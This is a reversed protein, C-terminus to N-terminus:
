PACRPRGGRRRGSTVGSGASELLEGLYLEPPVVHGVGELLLFRGGPVAEAVRRGEEPEVMIDRDGHVVLTPARIAPAVDSTDAPGMAELQMMLGHPDQYGDPEPFSEGADRMRAFESEPVCFANVAAAVAEMPAEGRAAMSTLERLIYMSRAPTRLYSSVLTLTRVRGGHEAALYQAIHSGMSWGLVHASGIGLADMLAAADGAMDRETFGGSCVTEGVGRNDYTVVTFRESLLEATPGWFDVGAGFGGILLVPDGSGRVEYRLRAGGVDAFM